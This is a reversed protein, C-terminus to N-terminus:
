IVIHPYTRFEHQASRNQMRSRKQRDTMWDEETEVKWLKSGARQTGDLFRYRHKLGHEEDSQAPGDGEEPDSDVVHGTIPIVPPQHPNSAIGLRAKGDNHARNRTEGLLLDLDAPEWSDWLDAM